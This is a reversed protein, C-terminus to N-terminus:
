DWNIFMQEELDPYYFRDLLNLNNDVCQIMKKKIIREFVYENHMKKINLSKSCEYFKMTLKKTSSYWSLAIFVGIIMFYKILRLM